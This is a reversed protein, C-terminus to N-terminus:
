RTRVDVAHRRMARRIQDPYREAIVRRAVAHIELRARYSPARVFLLVLAGDRAGAQREAVGIPQGGQSRVVYFRSRGRNRRRSRATSWQHADPGLALDSLLRKVYGGSLNGYADLPAGPGPVCFMGAPMIGRAALAVEHRKMARAGGEIQARLYKVPPTGKPAEDKLWVRSRLRDATAKEVLFARLTTPTPRDFVRGMVAILETRVDYALWNLATATAAPLQDRAFAEIMEAVDLANSSVRVVMM